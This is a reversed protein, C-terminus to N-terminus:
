QKALLEDFLVKASNVCNGCSKAVNTVEQVEQFSKAGNKIANKLDLGTVKFCECVVTNNDMNNGGKFRKTKLVVL